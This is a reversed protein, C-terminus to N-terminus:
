TLKTSALGQSQRQPSSDRPGESINRPSTEQFSLPVSHCRFRAKRINLQDLLSNETNREASSGFGTHVSQHGISYKPAIHDYDGPGPVEHTNKLDANRNTNSAFTWSTSHKQNENPTVILSNDTMADTKLIDQVVARIKEPSVRGESNRTKVPGKIRQKPQIKEVSPPYDHELSPITPPSKSVLRKRKAAKMIKLRTQAVKKARAELIFDPIPGL